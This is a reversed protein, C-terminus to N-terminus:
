KQRGIFGRCTVAIEGEAELLTPAVDDPPVVTDEVKDLAATAQM